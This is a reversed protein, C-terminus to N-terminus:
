TPKRPPPPRPSDPNPSLLISNKHARMARALSQYVLHLCTEPSSLQRHVQCSGLRALDKGGGVKGRCQWSRVRDLEIESTQM